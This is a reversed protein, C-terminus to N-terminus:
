FKYYLSIVPFVYGLSSFMRYCNSYVYSLNKSENKHQDLPQMTLAKDPAPCAKGCSGCGTCYLSAVQISYKLGEFIKGGKADTIAFNEHSNKAEDEDLLFSRIVTHPCVYSCQNCQLCKSSLGM